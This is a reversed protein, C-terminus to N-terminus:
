ENTQGSAIQIPRGTYKYEYVPTDQYDNVFLRYTAMPKEGTTDVSFTAWKTRGPRWAFIKEDQGTQTYTDIPSYFAQLPSSSFPGATPKSAAVWFMEREVREYKCVRNYRTSFEIVGGPLRTVGVEHRDGSLVIVNPIRHTSIFDLIEQREEMYGSWTDNAEWPWNQTFPVSSVLFKFTSTRNVNVLWHKLRAKQKEGLMTREKMDRFERTDMVFFATDGYAFDYIATRNADDHPNTLGAYDNFARFAAPFPEKEHWQWNNLVEHDDYITVLPLRRFLERFDKRAFLWRYHWWYTQVDYGYIYPADAYILDGLFLMFSLGQQKGVERFGRVDKTGYPFNHKVCSSYAFTFKAKSGDVPFTRFKFEKEEEEGFISENKTVSRWRYRYDTNPTLDRCTISATYDNESALIAGPGEMWNTDNERRYEFTVAQDFPSRIFLKAFDPGVGGVRTTILDYNKEFLYPRFVYDM